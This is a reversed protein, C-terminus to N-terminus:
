GASSRGRGSHSPPACPPLCSTYMWRMPATMTKPAALYGSGGMPSQALAAVDTTPTSGTALPAAHPLGDTGTMHRVILTELGKESTDTAM